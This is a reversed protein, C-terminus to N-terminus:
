NSNGSLEFCFRASSHNRILRAWGTVGNCQVNRSIVHGEGDIRNMNSVRGHGQQVWEAGIGYEKVVRHVREMDKQLGEMGM